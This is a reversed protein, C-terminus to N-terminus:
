YDGVKPKGKNEEGPRTEPLSGEPAPEVIVVDPSAAPPPTVVVNPGAAASPPTPDAGEERPDVVAGAQDDRQFDPRDARPAPLEPGAPSDVDPEIAFAPIALFAASGFLALAVTTTRLSNSM